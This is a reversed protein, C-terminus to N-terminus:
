RITLREPRSMPTSVARVGIPASSLRITMTRVTVIIREM